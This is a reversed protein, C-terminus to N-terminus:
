RIENGEQKDKLRQLEARLRAVEAEASETPQVSMPEYLDPVTQKLQDWTMGVDIRNAWQEAESLTPWLLAVEVGIVLLQVLAIGAVWVKWRRSDM